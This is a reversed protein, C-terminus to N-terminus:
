NLYTHIFSLLSIGIFKDLSYDLQFLPERRQRWTPMHANLGKKKTPPLMDLVREINDGSLEKLEEVETM